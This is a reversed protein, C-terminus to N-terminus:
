AAADGGEGAPPDPVPTPLPIPDDPVVDIPPEEPDGPAPLTNADDDDDPQEPQDPRERIPDVVETASAEVTMHGPVGIFVAESLDVQCTIEVTIYRLGTDSQLDISEEFTMRRCLPSGLSVAEQAEERAEDLVSYPDRAITLKRAAARAAGEVHVSAVNVRGAFVIAAVFVFSVSALVIMELPASGRDDHILRRM